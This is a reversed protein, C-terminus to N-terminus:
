VEGAAAAAGAPAGAGDARTAIVINGFSDIEAAMGTAVWITSGPEEVIAPGEIRTGAALAYRDYVPVPRWAGEELVDRSGTPEAAGGGQREGLRYKVIEGVGTVRISTMEPVHDELKITYIDLYMREFEAFTADLGEQTVPYSPFPVSLEYIQGHYRVDAHYGFTMRAPDVGQSALTAEVKARLEGLRANLAERDLERATAIFAVSADEQMDTMLLGMACTNGPHVPVLVRPIDLARAVPGAVMGGAGGFAVLTLDRPDLGKWISVSRVANAMNQHSIEVIGEVLRDGDLDLREALREIGARAGALDLAITGDAIDAGLVGKVLLADSLTPETGGRGYCIPGPQAGSSRPGVKLGGGEDIWAISGGGAGVSEVDIMPVRAPLGWEVQRERSVFPKGGHILSVDTSTGGVDFTVIDGLGAQGGIKAAAIAGAAPGSQLTAIPKEAARDATIMGGSGQMFFLDPGLGGAQLEEALRRIYRVIIPKLYADIVVTSTREYERYEANIDSSLSVAVDPAEERVLERLRLEHAPNAYAHILSVAVSEVGMGALERITARAAAEDLPQEVAGDRDVREIAERRYRRRVLPRPKEWGLDYGSERDTRMIELVDRFGDTTLLGTLAGKREILANTGTTTGHAMFSVQSLDVSAAGVSAMVGIAQNEPTTPVKASVTRGTEEDYVFIDTFTGGVDM